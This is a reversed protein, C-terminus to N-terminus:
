IRKLWFKAEQYHSFSREDTKFEPTHVLIRCDKIRSQHKVHLMEHFMVYEVVYAPVTPSDFFRSVFITHHTSDYRGLIYTSRKTSWSLKPKSLTGGFYTDNLRNFTEDLDVYRGRSGPVRALRSRSCRVQQTREQIERQLIFLRYVRHYGGDIKKHYLKALLILALSQYVEDPADSFIDSLRVILRGDHLRATHNLGAFPFFEVTIQPIPTRPKLQRHATQFILELSDVSTAPSNAVGERPAEATGSHTM